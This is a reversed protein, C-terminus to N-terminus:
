ASVPLQSLGEALCALVQEQADDVLLLSFLSTYRHKLSYWTKGTFTMLPLIAMVKNEDVVCALAMAHDDDLAVATLNEFWSRSFFLSDKEGKAFLETASEPLQNWDTYCVFKM